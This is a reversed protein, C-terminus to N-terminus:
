YCANHMLIQLLQIYIFIYIYISTSQTTPLYNWRNNIQARELKSLDWCTQMVCYKEFCLIILFLCSIHPKTRNNALLYCGKWSGIDSQLMRWLSLSSRNIIITILSADMTGINWLIYIYIYMCLLKQLTIHHPPLGNIIKTGRNLTRVGWELDGKTQLELLGKWKM